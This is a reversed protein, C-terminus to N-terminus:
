KEDNWWNDVAAASTKGSAPVSQEKYWADGQTVSQTATTRGIASSTQENYWADRHGLGGPQSAVAPVARVTLTATPATAMRILYGGAGSALVGLLLLTAFVACLRRTSWHRYEHAAIM